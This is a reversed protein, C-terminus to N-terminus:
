LPMIFQCLSWNIIHTFLFLITNSFIMVFSEFEEEKALFHLTNSLNLKKQRGVRSCSKKAKKKAVDDHM